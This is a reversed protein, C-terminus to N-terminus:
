SIDILHIIKDGEFKFTSRGRLELADGAKLGNPLDVALVARYDIEVTISGNEFEWSSIRQEREQFYQKASAAQQRFAEIGDTRLDVQGNSINEFVINEDLDRTMGDIDFNNYANVYQEIISQQQERM